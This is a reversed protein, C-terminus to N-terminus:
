NNSASKSTTGSSLVSLPSVKWGESLYFRISSFSVSCDLFYKFGERLFEESLESPIKFCVLLHRTPFIGWVVRCSIVKVELMLITILQDTSVRRELLYTSRRADRWSGPNWCNRLDPTFNLTTDKFPFLLSSSPDDLLCCPFRLSLSPNLTTMALWLLRCAIRYLRPLRCSKSWTHACKSPLTPSSDEINPVQTVSFILSTPPSDLPSNTLTHITEPLRGEQALKLKCSSCLININKIIKQNKSLIERHAAIWM